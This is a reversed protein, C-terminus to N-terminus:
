FVFRTKDGLGPPTKWALYKGIDNVIVVNLVADLHCEMMIM